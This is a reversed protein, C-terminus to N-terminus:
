IVPVDLLLSEGCQLSSQGSSVEEYSERNITVSAEECPFFLNFQFLLSAERKSVLGSSGTKIGKTAEAANSLLHVESSVLSIFMEHM